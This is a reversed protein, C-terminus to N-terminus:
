ILDQKVVVFQKTFPIKGLGVSCGLKQNESYMHLIINHIVHTDKTRQLFSSTYTKDFRFKSRSVDSNRGYISLYISLYILLYIFLKILSYIYLYASLCLSSYIFSSLYISLYTSLYISLYITLFISTYASLYIYFM